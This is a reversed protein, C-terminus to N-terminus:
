RAMGSLVLAMLVMMGIGVAIGPGLTLTILFATLGKGVRPQVPPLPGVVRTERRVVEIEHMLM